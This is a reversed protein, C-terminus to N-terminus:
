ERLDQQRRPRRRTQAILQHQIALEDTFPVTTEQVMAIGLGFGRGFDM